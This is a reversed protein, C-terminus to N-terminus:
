MAVWFPHSLGLWGVGYGEAVDSGFFAIGLGFSTLVIHVGLAIFLGAGIAPWRFVVLRARDHFSLIEM